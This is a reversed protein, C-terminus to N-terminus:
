RESTKPPHINNKKIQHLQQRRQHCEVPLFNLEFNSLPHTKFPHFTKPLNGDRSVLFALIKPELPSIKLFEVPFHDEHVLADKRHPSRQHLDFTLNVLKQM